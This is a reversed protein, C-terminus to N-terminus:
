EGKGLTCLTPKFISIGMYLDWGTVETSWFWANGFFATKGLKGCVNIVESSGATGQEDGMQKGQFVGSLFFCFVSMDKGLKRGGDEWM